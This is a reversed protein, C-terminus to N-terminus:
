QNRRPNLEEQLANYAEITNINEEPDQLRIWEENSMKKGLIREFQRKTEREVPDDINFKDVVQARGRPNGRAANASPEHIITEVHGTGPPTTTGDGQPEATHAVRQAKGWIFWYAEVWNAPDTQQEASMNSMVQEIYAEYDSFSVEEDKLQQRAGAKAAERRGIFETSLPAKSAQNMTKAVQLGNPVPEDKPPDKPKGEDNLALKEELETAYNMTLKLAEEQTRGALAGWEPGLVDPM